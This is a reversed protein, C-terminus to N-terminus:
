GTPPHGAVMICSGHPLTRTPGDATERGLPFRDEMGNLTWLRVNPPRLRSLTPNAM